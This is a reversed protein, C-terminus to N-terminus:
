PPEDLVKRVADALEKLVIPKMLYERIGIEKAKAVDISESFGTCLIIPIDPQLKLLQRALEAGTRMPMTMDTIVLDVRGGNRKFAELLRDSQTFARVEYGLNELMKQEMVAIADDDDLVWIRESGGPLTREVAVNGVAGPETHKPFLIQFRTGKNVTSAFSLYGGHKKVIGHVVSLGLGTGGDSAKTTFYPELIRKRISDEIGQGTDSVRLRVYDGAKLHQGDIVTDVPYQVEDVAVTLVGGRKLMAHRANTCLNMLLQHIQTPNGVISGAEPAIDARIAITAPLSSRMLKLTEKVLPELGIPKSEHDAQRSFTLIQRILERARNSASIIQDLHKRNESGPKLRLKLMDAYGMIPALINNFDHAIGGAMTGIAEMKQAYILQESLQEKEAEMRKRDTIEQQLSENAKALDATRHAVRLELQDHSRQLAEEARKRQLANTFIQGMAKLLAVEDASWARDSQISAMGLIGTIDGGVGMPISVIAHIDAALLLEKEAAAEAPLADVCSVAVEENRKLRALWWPMSAADMKRFRAMKGKLAESYWGHSSFFRSGNAAMTFVFGCEVNVFAAIRKLALDIQEDVQKTKLNIFLSSMGLLLTEFDLRFTLRKEIKQRIRIERKLMFNWTAVAALILLAVGVVQLIRKWFRAPDIGPDYEVDIWRQKVKNEKALSISALGKNIIPVLQSWDKRVAFHLKQLEHSVPAAVKLNTLHLKRIWYTASAINGVLADAEGNSVAQLAEQLTAYLTPRITTRDELYGSHSTNAQVAVKQGAIDNLGAFFPADTRNIIVRHFELYPISFNLDKIREQTVAVCPLVDLEKRRAAAMTEEWTLNPVVQMNLGLRSNLIKVYDSAIGAYTGEKTFYEFPAFEPDVGVRIQRHNQIWNTEDETLCHREQLVAAGRLASKISIWSNFISIKRKEPIANLAKDLISALEPWDKRVGFRQGWFCMDYRAAVQLNAIGFKRSLFDNTGLVGVYLDAEGASVAMLGDLPTAVMHPKISPHEAVVRHTCAYGKVLAVKHGGLDEPGDIRQDDERSMIVLPTPIYPKSFRLFQAGEDTKVATLVVDVFGKRAGDLIQTWSLGPVAKLHLGLRRCILACFDMAVGQLYGHEDLFSYPAYAPNVGMHVVPHAKLWAREAPTLSIEGMEDKLQRQFEVGNLYATIIEHYVSNPDNKLRRLQVDLRDLLIRGYPSGKTAAFKLQVPNFLLPTKQIQHGTENLAGYLRNVVGADAAASDLLDFVEDYGDVEIYTLGLDFKAALSKIGDSGDTHISGRMVAITKGRLDLLSEIAFGSRTYVTGWNLFVSEDAFDYIRGREESFAVDVMIDIENQALRDLCQSWTGFVYQLRWGEEKAVTELIDAFIGVVAGRSNSYIKPRNEYAGVRVTPPPDCLGNGFSLAVFFLTILFLRGGCRSALNM